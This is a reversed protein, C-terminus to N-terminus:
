SIGLTTCQGPAGPGPVAVAACDACYYMTRAPDDARSPRGVWRSRRSSLRGALLAPRRRPGVPSPGCCAGRRRPRPQRGAPWRCPGGRRAQCANQRTTPAHPPSLQHYRSRYFKLVARILVSGAKLRTRCAPALIPKPSRVTVTLQRLPPVGTGGSLAALPDHHVTNGHELAILHALDRIPRPQSSPGRENVQQLPAPHLLGVARQPRHLLM